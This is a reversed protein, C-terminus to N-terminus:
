IMLVYLPYIRFVRKIFFQRPSFAEAKAFANIALSAGSLVFFLTVALDGLFVHGMWLDVKGDFLTASDLGPVTRLVHHLVVLSAAIDRMVDLSQFHVKSPREQPMNLRM